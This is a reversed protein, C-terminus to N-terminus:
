VCGRSLFGHGSLGILASSTARGVDEAYSSQKNVDTFYATYTKTFCITMACDSGVEWHSKPLVTGATSACEEWCLSCSQAELNKRLDEAVCTRYRM